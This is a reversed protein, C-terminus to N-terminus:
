KTEEPNDVTKEYEEQIKEKHEESVTPDDDEDDTWPLPSNAETNLPQDTMALINKALFIQVAANMNVCANKLMARRLTIKLEERGKTLYESFNYRLTQETVGYFNAIDTNSCGLSALEKVQDPPVVQKNDGRGVELGVITAEVLEKPKPGTKKPEESM